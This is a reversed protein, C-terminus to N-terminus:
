RASRRVRRTAAALGALALLWPAHDTSGGGGASSCYCGSGGDTGGGGGGGGQGGGSSGTSMSAGTSAGTTAGGDVYTFGGPLTFTVGDRKVGVDVAGAAHPPVTVLITHDDAPSATVEAGDFTVTTTFDFGEGNIQVNYMGATSGSNPDISTIKPPSVYTFGDALTVSQGDANTAVIDVPGAAHAPTHVSVKTADMWAVNTAPLGDFTLAVTADLNNGEVLVTDDGLTSGNPATVQYLAPPARFDFADVAKAYHGNPNTVTVDVLDTFPYTPTTLTITTASSVNVNTALESGFRVTAGSAFETGTLTVSTGGMYAGATPTIADLTPLGCFDVEVPVSSQGTGDIFGGGGWCFVHGDSKLACAAGESLRVKTANAGPQGLPGSVPTPTRVSDAPNPAGSPNQGNGLRGSQTSGWCQVAGGTVIACVAHVATDVFQVTNGLAAVQIPSPSNANGGNGMEGWYNLGWCWLSKDSKTACTNFGGVSISTANTLVNIPSATNGDFFGAGVEGYLNNGWCSVQGNKLACVHWFGASVQTNGTGLATVQVPTPHASNDIMGNGLQGHENAGWCWVSGDSLLACGTEWGVAVHVAPLPLGVVKKAYTEQPTVMGIGLQGLDNPGWCWVDGNTKLACNHLAEGDMDALEVNDTGLDADRQAAENPVAVNMPRWVSGDTRIGYWGYNIAGVGQLDKTCPTPVARATTSVTAIPLGVLLAAALPRIWSSSRM